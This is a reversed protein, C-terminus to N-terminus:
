CGRNSQPGSGRAAKPIRSVQRKESWFFAMALSEVSITSSVSSIRIRFSFTPLDVGVKRKCKLFELFSSVYQPLARADLRGLGINLFNEKRFCWGYGKMDPCFYLEPIEAQMSCAKSQDLTMEFEAEQAVVAAEKRANAGLFHAVPCFHGGAGVILQTKFRNNVIWHDAVREFGALPM